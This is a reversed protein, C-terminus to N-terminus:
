EDPSEEEGDSEPSDPFVAAKRIKIFERLSFATFYLAAAVFAAFIVWSGWLPIPSEGALGGSLIQWALYGIYGSVALRFALFTGARGVMVMDYSKRKKM